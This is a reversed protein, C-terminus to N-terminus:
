ITSICYVKASDRVAEPAPPRSFCFFRAIGERSADYTTQARLSFKDDMVEKNILDVIEQIENRM